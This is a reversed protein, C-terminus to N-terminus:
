LSLRVVRGIVGDDEQEDGPDDHGTEDDLRQPDM